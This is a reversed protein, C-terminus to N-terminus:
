MVAFYNEVAFDFAQPSMSLPQRQYLCFNKIQMLLDRPQCSRFPRKVAKYHKEILYDAGASDYEFGLKGAMLELLQRFEAETPDVVEIKYPIRRLFADDVLQKPELNTSFIILQDFPVQIKKGNPLNLFDYRKELPVIWRNLLEDTGMRQRGFDDIVLSGCNSKLQLPAESIGTSRNLTVELSDMTLEGGAIITPRRIRIWRRDIQRSDYLGEAKELPVVEHNSPDFLRIIEGDISISRPIWITDGFARTIREAISTKGNGPAGFLFLGRGSNIAPGLRYLMRKNMLLDSFARDLDEPSPHRKTLSQRGVSEIYDKLHVPASGFYTCHESLRRARDRGQETLQYQYDNAVSTGRYVVMQDTKLSFMLDDILKFPMKLQEAVERGTASVASLLYKMAISEAESENLRAERFSRPELPVFPEDPNPATPAAAEPKRLAEIFSEGRSRPPEASSREEDESRTTERTAERTPEAQPPAAAAGEAAPPAEGGNVRAKIRSLLEELRSDDAKPAPGAQPTTTGSVSMAFSSRHDPSPYSAVVDPRRLSKSLGVDGLLRLLSAGCAPLESRARRVSRSSAGSGITGTTGFARGAADGELSCPQRPGGPM